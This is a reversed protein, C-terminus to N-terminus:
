QKGAKSCLKLRASPRHLEQRHMALVVKLPQKADENEFCYVQRSFWREKRGSKKKPVENKGSSSEM